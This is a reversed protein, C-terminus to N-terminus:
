PQTRAKHAAMGEEHPPCYRQGIPAIRGCEVFLCESETEPLAAYRAANADIRAAADATAEADDGATYWTRGQRTWRFNGSSDRKRVRGGPWTGDVLLKGQQEKLLKTAEHRTVGLERAVDTVTLPTQAKLGSVWDAFQRVKPSRDKAAAYISLGNQSVGSCRCRGRARNCGPEHSPKSAPVWAPDVSWVRGHGREGDYSVGTFFGYALTDSWKRLVKGAVQDAVGTMQALLPGTIVPTLTEYKFCLAIVGLLYKEHTVGSGSVRAALEHLPVPDFAPRLGPIFNEVARAAGSKVHHRTPNLRAHSGRPLQGDRPQGLVWDVVESGPMGERLAWAALKFALHFIEDTNGANELLLDDPPDPLKLM